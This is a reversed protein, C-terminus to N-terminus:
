TKVKNLLIKEIKSIDKIRKSLIHIISDVENENEIAEILAGIVDVDDKNELNSLYGLFTRILPINEEKIREYGLIKMKHMETRFFAKTIKEDHKKSERQLLEWEEDNM